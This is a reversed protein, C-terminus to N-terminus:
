QVVGAKRAIYLIGQISLADVEASDSIHQQAADSFQKALIDGYLRCRGAPGVLVFNKLPQDTLMRLQGLSLMDEAAILADLFLSREYWSTQLLVDLFRPFMLARVLGVERIWSFANEVVAADYYADPRQPDDPQHRVSKSVFTHNVVADFLQGSMTTLSGTVVSDATLPIFKTHSSLIVIVGPPTFDPRALLGAVQTEEGRMFDLMGVQQTPSLSGSGMKNKIGRVFYVPINPDAIGLNQVRTLGAALDDMACPAELHPIACLGIESTIMGSSLIAAVGSSDLEAQLMAQAVIERLGDRLIDHGGTTATDKVGVQKIAKAYIRGHGDVVYARSNSTGCDITLYRM